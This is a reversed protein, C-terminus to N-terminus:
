KGEGLLAGPSPQVSYRHQTKGCAGMCATWNGESPRPPGTPPVPQLQVGGGKQLLSQDPKKEKHHPSLAAQGGMELM